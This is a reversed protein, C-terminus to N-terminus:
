TRVWQNIDVDYIKIVKAPNGAVVSFNPVDKTVVSNAGVVCNKGITVGPSIHSGFGIFSNEGIYVPFEEKAIREGIKIKSFVDDYPHVVDVISCHGAITVNREIIISSRGIIHVNQEINVNDGIKIVLDNVAEVVELRLGKRLSCGSGVQVHKINSMLYPKYITTGPGIKKFKYRYFLRTKIRSILKSALNIYKM